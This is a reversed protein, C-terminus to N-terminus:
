VGGRLVRVLLKTMMRPAYPPPGRLDDEYEAYIGWLDLDEVLDSVFYALHNESQWDRLIPPLLLGQEPEYPRYRKSMRKKEFVAGCTKL